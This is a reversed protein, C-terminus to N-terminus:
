QVLGQITVKHILVDDEDGDSDVRFSIRLKQAGSAAFELSKDDYWRSNDFAHLSSWCKEGKIAGDDLEYNLCLNDSHEMEIAYFSFNIRFRTFSSNKLDIQNAEISSNGDEGGAIRVVGARNMANPYLTATNGHQDFLGFGNTFDEEVITMWGGGNSLNQSGRGTSLTASAEGISECQFSAPPDSSEDCVSQRIWDYQASVRAYVGPFAGHACSVGWSVVGVQIDASGSRVVLPGGSDGQCSDEGNDEACMMNDSIQNNYNMPYGGIKWGPMLETGGVVGSSQECEENSVTFVETKMLEVALTQIDDAPHTDGWGMVTVATGVPVGDPSVEVIDVDETTAHDLVIIMFDNDTTARDYNPHTVENKVAIEEGDTSDLAHRGIVAKYSGNQMCHSACLVIDPAILSGGCFHGVEDQLSVAYSYQGKTASVGGIIKTKLERQQNAGRISKSSSAMACLQSFLLAKSLNM